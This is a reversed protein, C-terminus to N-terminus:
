EVKVGATKVAAAYRELDDRVFQAYHGTGNEMLEMGLNLMRESVDRERLAKAVAAQLRAVIERPL